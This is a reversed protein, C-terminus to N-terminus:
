KKTSFTVERTAALAESGISAKEAFFLQDLVRKLQQKAKEVIGASQNGFDLLDAKDPLYGSQLIRRQASRILM